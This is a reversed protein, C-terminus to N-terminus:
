LKPNRPNRPYKLIYNPQLPDSLTSPSSCTQSQKTFSNILIFHTMQPEPKLDQCLFVASFCLSKKNGNDFLAKM